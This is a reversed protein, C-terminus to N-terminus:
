YPLRPTKRKPWGAQRCAVQVPFSVRLLRELRESSASRGYFILKPWSLSRAGRLGINYNTNSPSNNLNLSFVGARAGNNWNGGRILRILAAFRITEGGGGKSAFKQESPMKNKTSKMWGGLIKGVELVKECGFRYSRISMFKLDKSVRMLLRLVELEAGIEKQIKLRHDKDFTSNATVILGLIKFATNEVKQGLTFRLNKPFKVVKRHLWITLDYFKTFIKLDSHESM